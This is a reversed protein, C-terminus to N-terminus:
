QVPHAATQRVTLIEAFQKGAESALLRYHAGPVNQPARKAASVILRGPM